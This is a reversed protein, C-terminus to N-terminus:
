VINQTFALVLLYVKEQYLLISWKFIQIKINDRLETVVEVHGLDYCLAKACSLKILRLCDVCILWDSLKVIKTSVSKVIVYKYKDTM